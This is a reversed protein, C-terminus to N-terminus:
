AASEGEQAQPTHTWIWLAAAFFMGMTVLFTEQLGIWGSLWGGSLPGAVTGLLTMSTTVGYAVGRKEETVFRSILANSTPMLGGIFLGAAIRTAAFALITTTLATLGFMLATGITLALLIRRHGVRDGLRGATISSVSAAVGALALITGTITAVYTEPGAMSKIYLPVLPAVIMLGFQILFNIFAMPLLGPIQTVASLSALFSEPKKLADTRPPEQVQFHVLLLSLFSIVGMFYFPFRYGFADALLGGIFPGSATGILTATQYIGLAAGTKERPTFSTVLALAASAFGGLMGQLIRLGLLQYVNGVFGMAVVVFINSLLVREVMLKRGHRDGLNGWLPGLLAAFLPAAAMLVGAWVAVQHTETIGLYPLYLPLFSFIFSLSIGAGCQVFCMMYLNRKWTEM